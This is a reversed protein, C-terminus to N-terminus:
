EQLHADLFSAIAAAALGHALKNPHADRPSLVVDGAKYDSFVDLLDLNPVNQQAWFKSLEDHVSRYAYNTGLAHLFPFTVVLLKANRSLVQDRFAQLHEQQQQWTDGQYAERVLGYYDAIQPENAARYRSHLTNLFYSYKVFFGPDPAEYIRALVTQWEPIVDAIDNLCYVLVVVDTEYGSQPVFTILKLEMQTDWGCEALVHVELQPRLARVRNAFREEVDAIGHGATFSDGVFTIRRKGPEVTPLYHLSDRFGAHNRQFHREFWRQTTKCLGFSDTSDYFFRFHVEGAFVVIAILCFLILLNGSVLAIRPQHRMRPLMQRFFVRTTFLLGGLLLVILLLIVNEAM